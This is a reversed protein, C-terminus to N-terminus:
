ADLLAERKVLIQKFVEISTKRAVVPRFSTINFAPEVLNGFGDDLKENKVEGLLLGLWGYGAEYFGRITYTHHRVPAKLPQWGDCNMWLGGDICVVRQGIELM